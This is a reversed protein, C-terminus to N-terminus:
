WGVRRQLMLPETSLNDLKAPNPQCVHDKEPLVRRRLSNLSTLPILKHFLKASIAYHCFALLSEPRM